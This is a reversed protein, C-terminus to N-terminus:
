ESEKKDKAKEVTISDTLQMLKERLKMYKKNTKQYEKKIEKIDDAHDAHLEAVREDAKNSRFLYIAMGLGFIIAPGLILGAIFGGIAELIM